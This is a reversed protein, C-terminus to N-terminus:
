VHYVTLSLSFSVIVPNLLMLLDFRARSFSNLMRPGTPPSPSLAGWSMRESCGPAVSGSFGRAVMSNSALGYELPKPHQAGHESNQVSGRM